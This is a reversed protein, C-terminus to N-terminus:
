FHVLCFILSAKKWIHLFGFCYRCLVVANLSFFFMLPTLDAANTQQLSTPSACVTRSNVANWKTCGGCHKLWIGLLILINQIESYIHVYLATPQMNGWWNSYGRARYINLQATKFSHSLWHKAALTHVSQLIFIFFLSKGVKRTEQLPRNVSKSTFEPASLCM